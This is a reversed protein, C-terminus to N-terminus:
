FPPPLRACCVHCALGVRLASGKQPPPWFPSWFRGGSAVLPATHALPGASPRRLENSLVVFSGADGYVADPLSLRRTTVDRKLRFRLHRVREFALRAM